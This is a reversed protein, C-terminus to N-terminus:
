AATGSLLCYEIKTLCMYTVIGTEGVQSEVHIM